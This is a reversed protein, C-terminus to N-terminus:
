KSFLRRKLPIKQKFYDDEDLFFWNEGGDSSVAYIEYNKNKEEGSEKYVTYKREIWNGESKMERFLPNYFFTNNEGTQNSFHTIFSSNGLSSYYKVVLPHTLGAYELANKENHAKIYKSLQKNLLNEQRASITCSLLLLICSFSSFKLV